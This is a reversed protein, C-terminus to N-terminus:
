PGRTKVSAWAQATALLNDHWCASVLECAFVVDHLPLGGLLPMFGVQEEGRPALLHDVDWGVVALRRHWDAYLVDRYLPV